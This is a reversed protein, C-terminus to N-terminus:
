RVRPTVRRGSAFTAQGAAQADLSVGSALLTPGLDIAQQRSLERAAWIARVTAQVAPPPQSAIAAAAWRAAGALGDAPVVESVLGIECARRASMREHNGLLALRMIEGHPMRASMLTPEYVAPMGYTVHPDFFTAHDAAIIFEVEGLLYFAGGCAMGNVAAIVPKWLGNSKPGLRRGPDEYTFPDFDFRAEDTPIAARDLGTCFATEGAGTLVIARVADDTRLGHWLAALEDCMTEDFANHRDPRDLTVVAVGDDGPDYGITTYPPSPEVGDGYRALQRVTLNFRGNLRDTSRGARHPRATRGPARLSGPSGGPAAAGTM